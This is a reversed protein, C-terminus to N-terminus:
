SSYLTIGWTDDNQTPKVNAPRCSGLDTIYAGGTSDKLINGCHLDHHILGNNHIGSLGYAIGQLSRLNGEL